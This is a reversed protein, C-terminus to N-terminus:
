PTEMYVRAVRPGIGSTLCYPITGGWAALEEATIREAGDEGLLTAVAGPAVDELDTVDAMAYDMSVMGLVPVRKGNIIVLARNSFERRYGDAYGVPLLAVRTPRRTTFTRNYGLNAAPPYNKIQIVLSRWALAPRLAADRALGDPSAYGYVGAGPRIMDFFSEPYLLAATTSAAHRLFGTVGAAEIGASAANFRALQERSYAADAADAFHTFVGELSLGPLSAIELATTAAKEPLVGLRGMGSDIKMQVPVIRGAMVAEISILRALDLEHLSPILNLRVVARAEEPLLAGLLQIPTGIGAERLEQGELCTAVALRDAGGALAARAAAVAGHGYADAKVAPMVQRGSGALRRFVGVNDAIAQLDVEVWARHRSPHPLERMDM